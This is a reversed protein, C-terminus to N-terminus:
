KEPGNYYSLVCVFGLESVRCRGLVQTIPGIVSCLPGPVMVERRQGADQGCM